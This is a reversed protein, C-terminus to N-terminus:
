EDEAPFQISQFAAEFGFDILYLDSKGDGRISTTKTFGTFPTEVEEVATPIDELTLDFMQVDVTDGTLRSVWLRGDRDFALGTPRGDYGAPLELWPLSPGSSGIRRIEGDIAFVVSGDPSPVADTVGSCPSGLCSELEVPKADTGVAWIGKETFLILRGDPHNVAATYKTLAPMEIPTFENAGGDLLAYLDHYTDPRESRAWLQGAADYGLIGRLYLGAQAVHIREFLTTDDVQYVGDWGLFLVGESNPDTRIDWFQEPLDNEREPYERDSWGDRGDPDRFYLLAVNGVTIWPRHTTDLAFGQIPDDPVEIADLVLDKIRTPADGNCAFALVLWM